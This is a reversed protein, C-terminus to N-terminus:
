PTRRYSQRRPLAAPALRRFRRLAEAEDSAPFARSTLLEVSAAQEGALNEEDPEPPEMTGGRGEEIRIDDEPDVADEVSALSHGHFLFRFLADLEARREYPPAFTATAAR